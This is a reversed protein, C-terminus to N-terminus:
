MNVMRGFVQVQLVIYWVSVYRRLTCVAVSPLASLLPPPGICYLSTSRSAAISASPRDYPSHGLCISPLLNLQWFPRVILRPMSSVICSPPLSPPKLLLASMLPPTGLYYLPHLYLLPHKPLFLFSSLTRFFHIYIRGCASLGDTNHVLMHPIHSSKINRSVNLKFQYIYIYIYIYIIIVM